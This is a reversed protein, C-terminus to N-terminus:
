ALLGYSACNIEFFINGMSQTLATMLSYFIWMKNTESKIKVYSDTETDISMKPHSNKVLNENDSKVSNEM